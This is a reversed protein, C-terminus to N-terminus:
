VEKRTILVENVKSEPEKSNIARRCLIVKTTYEPSQFADRVLQVDSNSMVLHCYSLRKCASFLTEHEQLGFGKSTYKVFSKSDIPAYPPDLYVFDGPQVNALSEQFHCVTFVVKQILKSVKKIHEFDICLNKYHGFPVNFGNPGERYVGRFCTKNLFLFMASKDGGEQNFKSRIWYYYSEQSTMAEDLTKPNRNVRTNGCESFEQVLIQVKQILDDPDRQVDKYLNILHPNLDSAHVTGKICTDSSLVALLVSGGGVFPEHYNNMEKPVVKLIEHIIQTKGGVWKLFPKM